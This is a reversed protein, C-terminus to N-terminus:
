GTVGHGDVLGATRLGAEGAEEAKSQEMQRIVMAHYEGGARMLEDHTGREVV